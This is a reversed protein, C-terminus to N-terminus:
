CNPAIAVFRTNIIGYTAMCRDEVSGFVLDRDIANKDSQCSFNGSGFDNMKQEMSVRLFHFM